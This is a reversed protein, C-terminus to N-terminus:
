DSPLLTPDTVRIFRPRYVSAVKMNREWDVTNVNYSVLLGRSDSLEPHAKANYSLDSGNNEPASWVTDPEGWPGEPRPARRVQIDPGAGGKQSVMVYDGLATQHVSHEVSVNDAIVAADSMKPSWDSGNFFRWSDSDKLKDSPVRALVSEKNHGHDRVGYLYLWDDQRLTASGFFIAPKGDEAEQFHEIKTYNSVKPGSPTLNLDGVWNGIAKFGLAGGAETRDFQGLLVQVRGDEAVQADHLWFWGKGDPPAFLAEPHDPDGGHHFEVQGEATQHGLTNNVFALGPGRSDDQGVTGLFTDSFLWLTTGDPLPVSYTGDAGTWGSTRHFLSTYDEASQAKSASTRQLLSSRTPPVWEPETRLLTSQDTSHESSASSALRHQGPLRVASRHPSIFM